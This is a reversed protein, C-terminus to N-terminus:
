QPEYEVNRAQAEARNIIAPIPLQQPNNTSNSLSNGRNNGNLPTPYNFQYSQIEEAKQNQGKNIVDNIYQQSNQQSNLNLNQIQGDENGIQSNLKPTTQYQQIENNPLTMPKAPSQSIETNFHSDDYNKENYSEMNLDVQNGINTHSNQGLTNNNPKKSNEREQKIFYKQAHSRIQAGSRSGVHEEVKKWNKGYLQLAEVFRSHEESTWRGQNNNPNSSMSHVRNANNNEETANNNHHNNNQMMQVQSNIMSNNMSGNEEYANNQNNYVQNNNNQEVKLQNFHRGTPSSMSKYKLSQPITNIDSVSHQLQRPLGLNLEQNQNDHNSSFYDDNNINDDQFLHHRNEDQENQLSNLFENRAYKAESNPQNLNQISNIDQQLSASLPSSGEKKIKKKKRKEKELDTSIDIQSKIKLM